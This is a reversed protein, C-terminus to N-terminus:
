RPINVRYATKVKGKTIANLKGRLMKRRLPAVHDVFLIGQLHDYEHQIVRGSYGRYTETKEIWNEDFYHITVEDERWVNEHIGPLSLCGEEMEWEDGNTSLIQPNIFVKKFDKLDPEEEGMPSADVVFLRISLGIQPAALGVGDASYMTEYMNEILQELAPYNKDIPKSERRLLPDGYITVPLIM